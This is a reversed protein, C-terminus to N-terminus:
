PQTKTSVDRGDESRVYLNHHGGASGTTQM